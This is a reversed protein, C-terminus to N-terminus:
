TLSTMQGEIELSPDVGDGLKAGFDPLHELPLEGVDPNLAFDGVEFGGGGAV